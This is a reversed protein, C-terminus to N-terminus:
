CYLIFILVIVELETPCGNALKEFLRAWALWPEKDALVPSGQGSGENLARTAAPADQGEKSTTSNCDGFFGGSM